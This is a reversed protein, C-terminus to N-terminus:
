QYGLLARHVVMDEDPFLVARPVGPSAEDLRDVNILFRLNTLSQNLIGRLSIMESVM